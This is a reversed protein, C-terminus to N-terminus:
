IGCRKENQASKRDLPRTSFFVTQWRILPYRLDTM